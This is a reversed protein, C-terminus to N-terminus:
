GRSEADILPLFRMLRSVIELVAKLSLGHPAREVVMLETRAPILAIAATMEEVTGFPDRSGHVFLAPTRLQGFHATRLQEPKRPPHLPYSLLLLADVMRSDEAAAMSTQRGGYSHGCGIVFRTRTRMEAAAARVGDRDAAAQAPFPPGHPRADRYPLNYRLVLIGSAAFADGLAKLLPADANSGAGHTLVVGWDGPGSPEHWWRM